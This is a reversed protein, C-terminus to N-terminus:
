QVIEVPEGSLAQACALGAMVAAEVCGANFETKVWDGSLYLNTL